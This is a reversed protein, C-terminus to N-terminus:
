FDLKTEGELHADFYLGEASTTLNSLQWSTTEFKLTGGKPLALEKLQTFVEELIVQFKSNILETIMDDLKDGFMNRIMGGAFKAFMNDEALDVQVDQVKFQKTDPDYEPKFQLTAAGNYPGKVDAHAYLFENDGKLHIGQITINGPAQIEEQEALMANIRSFYISCPAYISSSKQM